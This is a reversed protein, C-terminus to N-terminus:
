IAGNSVSCLKVLVSITQFIHYNSPYQQGWFVCITLIEGEHGLNKSFSANPSQLLDMQLVIIHQFCLGLSCCTLILELAAAISASVFPFFFVWAFSFLLCVEKGWSPRLHAPIELLLHEWRWQWGKFLTQSPTSGPEVGEPWECANCTGSNMPNPRSEWWTSLWQNLGHSLM